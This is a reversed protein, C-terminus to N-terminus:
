SARRSRGARKPTGAPPLTGYIVTGLSSASSHALVGHTVNRGSAAVAMIALVTGAAVASAAVWRARRLIGGRGDPGAAGRGYPRAARTGDTM